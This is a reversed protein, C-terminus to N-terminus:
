NAIVAARLNTDKLYPFEEIEDVGAQTLSVVYDANSLLWREVKKAGRYLLGGAKWIGGDVREDAWFGRMDFIFKAGRRKKLIVGAIAAVYSRCHVIDFPAKRYLRLAQRLM